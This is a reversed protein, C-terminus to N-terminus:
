VEPVLHDLPLGLALSISVLRELTPYIRGNECRHVVGPLVGMAAALEAVSVNESERVHRLHEAFATMIVKVTSRDVRRAKGHRDVSGRPRGTSRSVLARRKV